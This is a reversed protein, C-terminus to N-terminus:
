REKAAFEDRVRLEEERGGRMFAEALSRDIPNIPRDDLYCLTPMAVIMVRRYNSINRIAPNGNMTLLELKPFDSFFPVIASDNSIQNNHADLSTLAPLEKLVSCDDINTILNRSIDLNKLNVLGELGELTRLRNQSLNLTHLRQLHSL